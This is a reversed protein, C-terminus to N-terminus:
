GLGNGRETGRTWFSNEAEMVTTVLKRSGSISWGVGVGKKPNHGHCKSNGLGPISGSGWCLCAPDKVVLGGSFETILKKFYAVM